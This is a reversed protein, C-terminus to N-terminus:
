ADMVAVVKSVTELLAAPTLSLGSRVPSMPELSQQGLDKAMKIKAPNLVGHGSEFLDESM